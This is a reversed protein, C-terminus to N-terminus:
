CLMSVKEYIAITADITFNIAPLKYLEKIEDYIESTIETLEYGAIMCVM